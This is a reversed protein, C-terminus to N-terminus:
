FKFVVSLSEVALIEVFIFQWLHGWWMAVENKLGLVLHNRRPPPTEVHNRPIDLHHQECEVIACWEAPRALCMLVATVITGSMM